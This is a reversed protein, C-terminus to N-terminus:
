LSVKKMANKTTEALLSFRSAHLAFACRVRGLLRSDHVCVLQSVRIQHFVVGRKRILLDTGLVSTLVGYNNLDCSRTKMNYNYSICSTDEHCALTCSLWDGLSVTRMVHNALYSDIETISFGRRVQLAVFFTVFAFFHVSLRYFHEM